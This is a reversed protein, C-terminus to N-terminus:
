RQAQLKALGEKLADQVSVQLTTTQNRVQSSLGAVQEAGMSASNATENLSTIHRVIDSVSGAQGEVSNSTSASLQFIDKTTSSIGGFAAQSQRMVDLVNTIQGNIEETAKTTQDSLTKVEAAVVAFGRGAEGARAAEITANLALLNTQDAIAQITTAFNAIKEMADNLDSFQNETSVVADTAKEAANTTQKAHDNVSSLAQNMEGAAESITSTKSSTVTATELLTKSAGALEDSIAHMNDCLDSVQAEMDNQFTGLWEDVAKERKAIDSVDMGLGISINDASRTKSVRLVSGNAYQRDAVSHPKNQKDLLKQVEAELDGDVGKEILQLRAMQEYQIPRDLKDWVNQYLKQYSKNWIILVNNEDFVAFPMDCADIGSQLKELKVAAAADEAFNADSLTALEQKKMFQFM